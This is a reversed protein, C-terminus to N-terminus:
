QNFCQIMVRTTQLDETSISVLKRIHFPLINVASGRDVLIRSIKVECLYGSIYLPRNHDDDEESIDEDTFIVAFSKWTVADPLPQQYLERWGEECMYCSAQSGKGHSNESYRRWSYKKRGDKEHSNDLSSRWASKKRSEKDHSNGLYSRWSNRKSWSDKYVKAIGKGKNAGITLEM